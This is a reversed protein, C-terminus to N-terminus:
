LGHGGVALYFCAGAGREEEAFLEFLFVVLDLTELLGDLAEQTLGPSADDM